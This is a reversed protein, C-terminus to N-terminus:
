TVASSAFCDGSIYADTALGRGFLPGPGGPGDDVLLAAHWQAAPQPRDARQARHGPLRASGRRSRAWQLLRPGRAAPPASRWRARVLTRARPACVDKGVGAGGQAKSCGNPTSAGTGCAGACPGELAEVFHPGPTLAM